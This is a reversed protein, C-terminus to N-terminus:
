ADEVRRTKPLVVHFTSGVNPMSEVWIKGNHLEVINKVIYLGLGTGGGKFKSLSTHHQMVDGVGYFKDFIRDLEEEPIGIGTDRVYVHVSDGEDLVGVAIEGGDPTYKIANSLLNTMVLTLYHADGEVIYGGITDYVIRQSRQEAYAEMSAISAEVVEGINIPEKKIELEGAEIKLAVIIANVVDVLGFASQWIMNLRRKIRPDDTKLQESLFELNGILSFLPTRLEHSAIVLFDSKLRDLRELERNAEELLREREVRETIDILTGVIAPKGEYTTRTAMVECWICRGQRMAATRFRVYGEAFGGEMKERVYSVCEPAILDLVSKGVLEEPREYGFIDAFAHNVFVLKTDQTIFVGSVSTEVLTRYKEESEKLQEHSRELKELMRNFAAALRGVEDSKHIPVRKALDDLSIQEITSVMRSIPGIVERRLLLYILVGLLLFMEVLAAILTGLTDHVVDYIYQRSFGLVLTGLNQQRDVVPQEKIILDEGAIDTDRMELLVNGENDLLGVYAVDERILESRMVQKAMVLDGEAMYQSLAISTKQAESTMERELQSLTRDEVVKGVFVGTIAITIVLSLVILVAAKKSLTNLRLADLVTDGRLTHACGCM